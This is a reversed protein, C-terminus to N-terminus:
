VLALLWLLLWLLGGSWLLTLVVGLAIMSQPWFGALRATIAVLRVDAPQADTEAEVALEAAMELGKLQFGLVWV